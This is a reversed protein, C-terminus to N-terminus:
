ILVMLLHPLYMIFYPDLILCYLLWAIVFWFIVQSLLMLHRRKLGGLSLTVIPVIVKRGTAGVMNCQLEWKDTVRGNQHGGNGRGGRGGSYRGRGHGSRGRAIPPRYSQKPCNRRINGTEGCGYCERSELM